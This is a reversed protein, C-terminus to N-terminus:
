WSNTASNFKMFADAKIGQPLSIVTQVQLGERSTDSDTLQMGEQAQMAFAFMPSTAVIKGPLPVSPPDVLKVDVLQATENLKVGGAAGLDPKGAMVAGFSSAPADKGKMYSAM